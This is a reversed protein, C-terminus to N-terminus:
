VVLDAMDVSREYIQRLFSVAALIEPMLDVSSEKAAAEIKTSNDIVKARLNRVNEALSIDKSLFSKFAQDNAECCASQLESLLKRLEDSLKADKLELTNQALQVCADGIGEILSSALRYDLCEIPTISLKESLRPNQIITRLIRVLLFYFKNNEVDREIVNKALDTDATIFSSAADRIMRAASANNRQLIKSPSTFPQQMMCQLSMMSTTEEVIMLGALSNATSKVLNRVNSDIRDKAEVRIIDYGLLYRGIIERSLYPGINLVAIKPQVENDFQPDVFLKGDSTVELNVQTGKQLGHEKAWDRPLCVFFTGTPTQQIKRLESM